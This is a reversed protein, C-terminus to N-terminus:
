RVPPIWGSFVRVFPSTLTGEPTTVTFRYRAKTRVRDTLTFVGNSKTTVTRLKTFAGNNTSVQVTVTSVGTPNRVMGWVSVKGGSPKADIMLRFGNFALKPAGNKALRLGSQFGGTELDDTLLYQSFARVRRNYYASREARARAELQQQQTLAAFTDPKSQLGFETFYIPVKANIAKGKAAQDLFASLRSMSQYTVDGAKPKATTFQYPHHALGDITLQDGCRTDRKMKTTLCLAQRLFDLPKLRGDNSGGVPATEGFLVLTSSQGGDTKIGERGAIFLQRYIGPSVAKGSAVQPLLFKTLNPENWISWIVNSAGFRKAAAAAFFRFEQPEPRTYQDAKAVTAWRPVPSALSILVTMGKATAADIATGYNGWSYSTPDSLPVSPKTALNADPAVDAWRLNIRLARVGLREFDAFAATRTADTSDRAVLDRPAEFFVQQTSAAQAPAAAALVGLALALFPLLTRRLTLAPLAIVM